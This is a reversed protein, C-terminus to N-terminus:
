ELLHYLLNDQYEINYGDNPKRIRAMNKLRM